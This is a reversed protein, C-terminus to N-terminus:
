APTFKNSFASHVTNNYIEIIREMLDNDGFALPNNKAVRGVMNRITKIVVDILNYSNTLQQPGRPPRLYFYIKSYDIESGDANKISAFSINKFRNAVGAFGKEGDGKFYIPTGFTQVFDSFCNFLGLASKANIPYSKLYKTNQNILFLYTPVNNLFVLDVVWSNFRPSFSPRQFKLLPKLRIDPVNKKAKDSYKFTEDNLLSEIEPNNKVKSIKVKSVYPFIIPSPEDNVSVTWRPEKQKAKPPM